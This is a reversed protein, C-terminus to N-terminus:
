KSILDPGPGLEKPAAVSVFMSIAESFATRLASFRISRYSILLYGACARAGTRHTRVAKHPLVLVVIERLGLATAAAAAVAGACPGAGAVKRPQRTSLNTLAHSTERRWLEM